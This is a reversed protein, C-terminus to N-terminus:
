RGRRRRHRILRQRRKVQRRNLANRREAFPNASTQTRIVVTVGVLKLADRVRNALYRLYSEPVADTQNGHIVVAPPHAGAKHAYRLKVPRSGALPPPHDRIADALIRNLAATTVNFEGSRHIAKAAAMLPAVGKHQLASVYHLPIWPAFSLRREVSARARRRAAADLSDWKNVALLIGAGAEIAYRLVHLDQDVIGERGDTVLVAVQARDLADLTKVISFTEVAQAVRGKRRVGATDILLFDGFPIDIADRTTGPQDVVVQRQEGLLSNVLTSKGVNPRGVVAVKIGPTPLTPVEAAAAPLVAAAARALATMGRGHAASVPLCDLGLAAFEFVADPRMGDMKNVAVIVATGSRRLRAAIAQDAATLGDRADVVLLALRAEDLATEVQAAVAVSVMEAAGQRAPRAAALGGTDILTVPTDGLTAHGYHRDRTLGPSDAVLADRTGCFRNFLTSKGVNPRGVLVVAPREAANAM